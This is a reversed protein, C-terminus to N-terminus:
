RYGGETPYSIQGLVVPKSAGTASPVNSPLHHLTQHGLIAFAIAEKYSGDIGYTDSTTITINPLGSQLHKVLTKNYMGGGSLVITTIDHHPLVYRKYADIMTVATAYTISAIIDEKPLNSYQELLQVTYQRGFQERGTSKPPVVQHYPHLVIHDVIDKHITGKSAVMGDVDYHRDFLKLMAEDIIMNGPGTDFAIISSLSRKKPLITLNSIGGINHLVLGTKVGQFLVYDAFPVLPAGTGGVAIDANRFNSVVPIGTLTSLVSGDGLQLSSPHYGEEDNIHYVTQGHSAILSITSSDIKYEECFRKVADSYAVALEFHVSSIVRATCMTEDLIMHIKEVLQQPLPYTAGQICTVSQIQDESEIETLAIDIGDLSTGSMLGIVRKKMVDCREIKM